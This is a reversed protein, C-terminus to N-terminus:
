RGEKLIQQWIKDIAVQLEPSAKARQSDLYEKSARGMLLLDKQAMKRVIPDQDLLKTSQCIPRMGSNLTMEQNIRIIQGNKGFTITASIKGMDGAHPLVELRGSAKLIGNATSASVVPAAFSYMGDQNLEQALLLWTTLLEKAEVQTKVNKIQNHFFAQQLNENNILTFDRNKTFVMINNPALPPPLEFGIPWQRFRLVYFLKDPFARELSSNSLYTLQGGQLFPMGPQGALKTVFDKIVQRPVIKIARKTLTENEEKTPKGCDFKFEPVSSSPATITVIDPTIVGQSASASGGAAEERFVPQCTAVTGQALLTGLLIKILARAKM